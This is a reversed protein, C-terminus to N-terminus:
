NINENNLKKFWLGVEGGSGRFRGLMQDAMEKSDWNTGTKHGLALYKVETGIDTCILTTFILDSHAEGPEPCISPM